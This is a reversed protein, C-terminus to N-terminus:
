LYIGNSVLKQSVNNKVVKDKKPTRGLVEGLKTSFINRFADTVNGGILDRNYVKNEYIYKRVPFSLPLTNDHLLQDNEYLEKHQSLYDRVEESKPPKKFHHKFIKKGTNEDEDGIISDDGEEDEDILILYGDGNVLKVLRSKKTPVSYDEWLFISIPSFGAERLIKVIANSWGLIVGKVSHALFTIVRPDDHYRQNLMNQRDLLPTHFLETTVDSPIVVIKEFIGAELASEITAEHHTTLPDFKSLLVGIPVGKPEFVTKLPVLHSLSLANRANEVEDDENNLIGEQSVRIWDFDDENNNLIDDQSIHIWDIDEEYEQKFNDQLASENENEDVNNEQTPDKIGTDAVFRIDPFLISALKVANDLELTFRYTGSENNLIAIDDFEYMLHTDVSWYMNVWSGIWLDLTLV